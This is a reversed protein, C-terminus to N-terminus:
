VTAKSQFGRHRAYKLYTGMANEIRFATDLRIERAWRPYSFNAFGIKGYSALGVKEFAGRLIAGCNQQINKM